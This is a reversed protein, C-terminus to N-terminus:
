RSSDSGSGGGSGVVMSMAGVAQLLLLRLLKLLLLLHIPRYLRLFLTRSSFFFCVTLVWRLNLVPVCFRKRMVLLLEAFLRAAEVGQPTKHWTRKSKKCNSYINSYRAVILIM